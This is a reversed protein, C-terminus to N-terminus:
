EHHSGGDPQRTHSSKGDPFRQEPSETLLEPRRECVHEQEELKLGDETDSSAATLYCSLCISRWSGDPIKVHQYGTSLPPRSPFQLPMPSAYGLGRVLEVLSEGLKPM